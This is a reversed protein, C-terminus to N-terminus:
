QKVEEAHIPFRMWAPLEGAEWRKAIEVAEDDPDEIGEEALVASWNPGYRGYCLAQGWDMGRGGDRHLVTGDHKIAMRHTWEVVFETNADM